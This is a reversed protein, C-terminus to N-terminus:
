YNLLYLSLHKSRHQSEGYFLETASSSLSQGCLTATVNVNYLTNYSLILQASTGNRANVPVQPSVNLNITDYDEEATWKIYVTITENRFQEPKSIVISGPAAIDATIFCIVTSKTLTYSIRSYMSVVFLQTCLAM